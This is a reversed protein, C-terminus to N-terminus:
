LKDLFALDKNQTLKTGIVLVEVRNGVRKRFYLRGKYAFIVEFVTERSKKAFVKRKIQVLTPDDNLQHIVEEAKIKMEETLDVFGEIARDHVAIRKYLAGFRKRAADIGKLQQRTKTENEKEFQKIKERLQNIELVHQDQQSLTEGIKEELAVLEDMMEDETASAHQRERDLEAKMTEIKESLIVRQSELQKLQDLGRQRESTLGDILGQRVREEEHIMKTGRRYFFFFVLLSAMVCSFLVSNSILTNHEIKVDVTKILGDNLLKFNERAVAISDVGSLDSAPNDYAVPYLYVGEGTKVTVNVLGGWRTLKRSSLFADVNERVADQLRVSGDFLHRTDGTYTASLEQDYRAQFTKELQQISFVYVLPPLLICLILAKFPFHRM